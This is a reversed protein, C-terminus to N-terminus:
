INTKGEVKLVNQNYGSTHDSKLCALIERGGPEPWPEPEPQQWVLVTPARVYPRRSSPAVGESQRVGQM